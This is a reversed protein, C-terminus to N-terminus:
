SNTPWTKSSKRVRAKRATWTTGGLKDLRAQRRGGRPLKPVLDLRELPVYLKADDAYRLRMFERRAGGNKSKICDKL